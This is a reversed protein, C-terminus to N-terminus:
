ASGFTESAPAAELREVLRLYRESAPYKLVTVHDTDLLIMARAGRTASRSARGRAVGARGYGGPAHVGHRRVKRAGPALRQTSRGRAQPHACAGFGGCPTGAIRPDTRAHNLIAPTLTVSRPSAAFMM